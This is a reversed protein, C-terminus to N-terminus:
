EFHTPSFTEPRRERVVDSDDVWEPPRSRLLEAILCTEGGGGEIGSCGKFSSGLFAFLSEGFFTGM